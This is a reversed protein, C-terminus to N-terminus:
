FTYRLSANAGHTNPKLITIQNRVVNADSYNIGLNASLGRGLNYALGASVASESSGDIQGYHGELSLGVTGLKTRAGSSVYWRNLELGRGTLREFGSGLDYISSGYTFEAVGGLADSRLDGLGDAIAVESRRFRASLRIDHDIIPRHWSTGLEFDGDQDVVADFSAPGQRVQYGGGWRSLQGLFDDYALVTEGYGPRRRTDNRVLNGVNGGYLTGWSTRVYGNVFGNYTKHGGAYTNCFSGCASNYLGGNSTYEGYYSIGVTWRNGLRQAVEIQGAGAIGPDDGSVWYQRNLDHAWVADVLGSIMVTASALQFAIPRDLANLDGYSLLPASGSPTPVPAADSQALAARAYAAANADAATVIDDAPLPAAQLKAQAMAAPAALLALACVAMAAPHPHHRMIM